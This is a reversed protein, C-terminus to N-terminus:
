IHLLYEFVDPSLFLFLITEKELMEAGYVFRAFDEHSDRCIADVTEALPVDTTEQQSSGLRSFWFPM